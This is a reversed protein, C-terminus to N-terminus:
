KIEIDNQPVLHFIHTCFTCIHTHLLNLLSTFVHFWTCYQAAESKRTHSASVLFLATFLLVSDICAMKTYFHIRQTGVCFFQLYKINCFSVHSYNKMICYKSDTPYLCTSHLTCICSYDPAINNCKIYLLKLHLLVKYNTQM